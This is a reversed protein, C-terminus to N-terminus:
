NAIVAYMLRYEIYETILSEIKLKQADGQLKIVVEGSIRGVTLVLRHFSNSYHQACGYLNGYRSTLILANKITISLFYSSFLM